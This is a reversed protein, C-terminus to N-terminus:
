APPANPNPAQIVPAAKVVKIFEQIFERLRPHNKVQGLIPRMTQFLNWIWEEGQQVMMDTQGPASREILTCAENAAQEVTLNPDAVINCIMQELTEIPMPQVQMGPVEPQAAAAAEAPSMATGPAPTAAPPQPNPAVNIPPASGRTMAISRARAEEGTAWAQLGSVLTTAVSPLQRVLEMAMTTKGEGGGGFIGAAKLSSIMELTDKVSNTAPGAPALITKALSLFELAEKMPSGSTSGQAGPTLTNRLMEAGNGFIKGQLDMANEIAKTAVNGGRSARLEEILANISLLLASEGPSSGPAATASTAPTPTKAAGEIRVDENIILQPGKKVKVNFLGGGFMDQIKFEDLANAFKGAAWTNGKDDYRYLYVTHDSWAQASLGHLYDSWHLTRWPKSSDDESASNAPLTRTRITKETVTGADEATKVAM